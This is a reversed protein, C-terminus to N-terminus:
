APSELHRKLQPLTSFRWMLRGHASHAAYPKERIPEYSLRHDNGMGDRFVMPRRNTQFREIATTTVLDLNTIM